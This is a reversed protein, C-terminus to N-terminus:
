DYKAVLNANGISCRYTIAEDPEGHYWGICEEEICEGGKYTCRMVFTKDAESSYNTEIRTTEEEKKEDELMKEINEKCSEVWSRVLEPMEDFSRSFPYNNDGDWFEGKIYIGSGVIDLKSFAKYLDVMAETFDTIQKERMQKENM